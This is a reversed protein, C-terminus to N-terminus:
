QLRGFVRMCVRDPDPSIRRACLLSPASCSVSSVRLQPSLLRRVFCLCFLKLQGVPSKLAVAVVHFGFWCM